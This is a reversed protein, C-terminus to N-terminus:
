GWVEDIMKRMYESQEENLPQNNMLEFFEAFLEYPSKNEDVAKLFEANSRTRKNDYSLKMIRPYIKRLKGLAELKDEEDTLCVHIYDETAAHEWNEKKMIDDFEGTIVRLDHLPTLERTSVTVKKNEINVVTVSKKHNVESFSYKLPTGCYRVTEKGINQPGHIHGLAVYDFDEFVTVDVNDLGGVSIEESESRKAGTVFQHAIIVNNEDKNLNMHKIAVKCATTYDIVSEAEDPFKAKVHIPKIFPLMYINAKEKGNDLIVPAIEGNFVPSIHVGSADLVNSAFSLKVASDHNGSIMFVQLKRKVLETLFDDLLKVAEESPTSKDYVDGAILIGYPKEDDVIDLIQKLIYKQDDIMSFENVRIGLHLDSLHILKMYIRAKRLKSFCDLVVMIGYFFTAM